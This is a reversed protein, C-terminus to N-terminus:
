TVLPTTAQSNLHQYEPKMNVYFRLPNDRLESEVIMIIVIAIKVSFTYKLLVTKNPTM